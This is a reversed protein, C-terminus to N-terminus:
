LALEKNKEEQKRRKKAIDFMSKSINIIETPESIKTKNYNINGIAFSKEKTKKFPEFIFVFSLIATLLGLFLNIILALVTLPVLIAALLFRKLISAPLDGATKGTQANVAYLYRKNNAITSILWVPALAYKPKLDFTKRTDGASAYYPTFAFKSKNMELQLDNQQPYNSFSCEIAHIATNSARNQARISSDNENVDFKEALFGTIYAGSFEKMYLFDYPEISDMYNNPMKQSGDVAINDLAINANTKIKVFGNGKHMVFFDGDVLVDGSYLWFPVYMGIVEQVKSNKVFGPKLLLRHKKYHKELEKLAEDKTIEFPIIYDPRLTGAFKHELISNNGCYPCLTILSLKESILQAACSTCNYAKMDEEIKGWENQAINKGENKFIDPNFSSACYDCVMKQKIPSFALSGGCSPCKYSTTDKM